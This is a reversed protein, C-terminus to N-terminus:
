VCSDSNQEQTLLKRQVRLLIEARDTKLLHIIRKLALRLLPIIIAAAIIGLVYQEWNMKM